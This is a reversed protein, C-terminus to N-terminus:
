CWRQRAGTACCCWRQCPPTSPCALHAPAAQPARTGPHAHAHTCAAAAHSCGQMRHAAASSGLCQSARAAPRHVGGEGWGVGRRGGVCWHVGDAARVHETPAAPELRQQKDTVPGEAGGAGRAAACGAGRVAQTHTHTPIRRHATVCGTCLCAPLALWALAGEHLEKDALALRTCQCAGPSARVAGGDGDGAVGRSSGWVSCQRRSTRRWASRTLWCSASSATGAHAHTHMWARTRGHMSATRSSARASIM